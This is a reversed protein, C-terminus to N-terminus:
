FREKAFCYKRKVFNVVTRNFTVAFLQLCIIWNMNKLAEQIIDPLYQQFHSGRQSHTPGRTGNWRQRSNTMAVDILYNLSFTPSQNRHAVRGHLICSNYVTRTPRSLAAFSLSTNLSHSLVTFTVRWFNDCLNLRYVVANRREKITELSHIRGLECRIKCDKNGNINTQSLFIKNKRLTINHWWIRLLIRLMSFWPLNM